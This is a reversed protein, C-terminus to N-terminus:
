HAVPCRMFATAREAADDAPEPAPALIPVPGIKEASAGVARLVFAETQAIRARRDIPSSPLRQGALCAHVLMVLGHPDQRPIAGSAMADALITLLLRGIVGAHEHLHESNVASVQDRLHIRSALHYRTTMELHSRVYLRLKEVPDPEGALADTLLAAFETTAESMYALLLVEKDEFHNYVATRGVGARAAIQSMTITDFSREALLEGLADFLRQRTLARHDALCDGIIKPM